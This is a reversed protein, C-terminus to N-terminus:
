KKEEMNNSNIKDLCASYNHKADIFDPNIELTKKFDSLAESFKYLSFYSFGRLNLAKFNLPNNSLIQNCISISADYNHKQQYILALQLQAEPFIPNIRLAFNLFEEAGTLNNNVLYIMAIGYYAEPYKTSKQLAAIFCMKAKDYEKEAFYVAGLNIYAEVINPEQKIIDIFPQRAKEYQESYFYYDAFSLFLLMNELQSYNSNDPETFIPMIKYDSKVFVIGVGDFFAVKWHKDMYLYKILNKSHPSLSQLLVYVIKYKEVLKQWYNEPNDVVNKYETLFKDGYIELRSDVFVKRDPWCNWMFYGGSIADNFINEQLNNKKIFNIAGTPYLVDLKGIGFEQILIKKHKYFTGTLVGISTVVSLVSIIVIYAYNFYIQPISEVQFKIQKIEKFNIITILSAAFAFLATNRVALFSVFLFLLYVIFRSLSFIKAAYFSLLGIIILFVFALKFYSGIESM